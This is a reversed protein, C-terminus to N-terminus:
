ICFSPKRLPHCIGFQYCHPSHSVKVLFGTDFKFDRWWIWSYAWCPPGLVVFCRRWWTHSVGSFCDPCIQCSSHAPRVWSGNYAGRDGVAGPCTITNTNALVVAESFFPVVVIVLTPKTTYSMLRVSKWVTTWIKMEEYILNGVKENSVKARLRVQNSVNLFGNSKSHWSGPSLKLLFTYHFIVVNRRQLCAQHCAWLGSM